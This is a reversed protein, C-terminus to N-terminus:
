LGRVAELVADVHGKVKVKRWIQAIKGDAAVLFTSREVGMYTKGYMSKEVWVGFAQCIATDPDSAIDVTLGHKGKFRANKAVPDPSIGIVKAGLAEFQARAQSFAICEETCAPTDAKPYFYLVVPSGQLSSLKVKEDDGLLLDVDPAPASITLDTM